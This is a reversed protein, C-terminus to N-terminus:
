WVAQRLSIDSHALGQIFWLSCVYYLQMCYTHLSDLTITASLITNM